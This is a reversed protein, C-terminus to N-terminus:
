LDGGSIYGCLVCKKVTAKVRNDTQMMFKHKCNNRKSENSEETTGCGGGSVNDLEEDSLEGSKHLRAFCEEAEEFTLEMGNEKACTHINLYVSKDELNLKCSCMSSLFM